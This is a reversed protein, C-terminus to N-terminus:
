TVSATINSTQDHAEGFHGQMLHVFRASFKLGGFLRYCGKLGKLLGLFLFMYGVKFCLCRGEYLKLSSIKHLGQLVNVLFRVFRRDFGKLLGWARFGIGKIM